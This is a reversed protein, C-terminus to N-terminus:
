LLSSENLAFDDEAVPKLRRIARLNRRIDDKLEKNSVGINAKVMLFPNLKEARLDTFKRAFNAPIIVQQDPSNGMISEGQPAVVGVVTMKRQAVEVQKGIPDGGGFLVLAIDHGLLCYPKGGEVEAPTFYRGTQLHLTNVREYDRAVAVLEIQDFRNNKYVANADRSAVFTIASATQLRGRLKEMEDYNPLPRQIYKWWPYDGGFAWPWKQIFIVNNGLSEVSGRINRELSDVMTYVSVISFIGITVGLLSLFTRLRHAWLAKLAFQVSEYLLHLYIKM